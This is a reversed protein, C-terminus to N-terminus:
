CEMISEVASLMVPEAVQIGAQSLEQYLSDLLSQVDASAREHMAEAVILINNTEPSVISKKSQRYCWRRSHAYNAEDLFVVEREEPHEIEDGFNLHEENGKVYQVTIGGIIQDLDYVAIPTAYALSYANCLNVVPHFVPLDGEKRFRRLLSEAACRYKTPKLGMQSYARRWAEIEPMQGEESADLRERAKAYLASLDFVSDASVHELVLVGAGLQPFDQWVSLSHKFYM